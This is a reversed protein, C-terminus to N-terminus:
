GYGIGSTKKWNSYEKDEEIWHKILEQFIFSILIKLHRLKEQIALIQYKKLKLWAM